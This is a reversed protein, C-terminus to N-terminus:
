FTKGVEAVLEVVDDERRICMEWRKITYMEAARDRSGYIYIDDTMPWYQINEINFIRISCGLRNGSFNTCYMSRVNRVLLSSRFQRPQHDAHPYGCEDKEQWMHRTRRRSSSTLSWSSQPSCCWWGQCPTKQLLIGTWSSWIGTHLSQGRTPKQSNSWQLHSAWYICDTNHIM